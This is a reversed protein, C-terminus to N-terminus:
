CAFVLWAVMRRNKENERQKRRRQVDRGTQSRGVEFLMNIHQCEVEVEVGDLSGVPSVVRM